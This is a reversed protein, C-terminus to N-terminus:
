QESSADYYEEKEKARLEVFLLCLVPLFHNSLPHTHMHTNAHHMIKDM